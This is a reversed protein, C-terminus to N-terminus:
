VACRNNVSQRAGEYIELYRAVWAEIDLLSQAKRRAAAGAARRLRADDAFRRLAAELAGSEDPDFLLGNEGDIVLEPIGGRHSAIVPTSFAFAEATVMGLPENWLSPVVVVDVSPFFDGPQVRGLFTVRSNGYRAKLTAEYSAQGTGGIFLEAAGLKARLFAEILLEIGKTSDLRGMYGVKLPLAEASDNSRAGDATDAAGNAEPVSWVGLKIPDRANHVVVRVGVGEFYGLGVHRELVYRSVGVVASVYRSLARHPRRYMACAACQVVCNEGRRYMSSKVCVAYYDHLVQVVPVGCNSLTRWAAASWGPLNHVSAVDPREIEVIRRLPGQMLPNYIDLVHWAARVVAGPRVKRYPWYLNRLHAHWVVVGDRVERNLGPQASGAALVCEHGAKVLARMLTWLTEEAGGGAAPDSLAHVFLIKM